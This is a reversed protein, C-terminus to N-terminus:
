VTLEESLRLKLLLKHIHDCSRIFLPHLSITEIVNPELLTM